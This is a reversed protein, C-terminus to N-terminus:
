FERNGYLVGFVCFLYCLIQEGVGESLFEGMVFDGGAPVVRPFIDAASPFVRLGERIVLNLYPLQALKSLTMDEDVLFSTRIERELKHLVLPNKALFYCLGAKFTGTQKVHKVQTQSGALSRPRVPESGATVLMIANEKIEELTMSTESLFYHIFDPRDVPSALRQDILDAGYYYHASFTKQMWSPLLPFLSKIGYPINKVGPLERFVRVFPAHKFIFIVISIWPHVTGSEIGSFSKGFALDSIVDFTAISYWHAIDVVGSRGQLQKQLAHVFTKAYHQLIPEQSAVARTSLAQMLHTRLRNREDGVM